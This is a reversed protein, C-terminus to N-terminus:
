ATAETHEEREHETAERWGLLTRAMLIRREGDRDVRFELARDNDELTMEDLEDAEDLRAFNAPRMISSATLFKVTQQEEGNIFAVRQRRVDAGKRQIARLVRDIGVEALRAMIARVTAPPAPIIRKANPVGSRRREEVVADLVAAVGEPEVAKARIPARKRKPAIRQDSPKPVGNGKSPQGEVTRSLRGSITDSLSHPIRSEYHNCFAALVSPHQDLATAWAALWAKPNRAQEDAAEVIWLIELDPWWVALPPSRERLEDIACQVDYRSSDGALTAMRSLSRELIGAINATIGQVMLDRALPSLGCTRPHTHFDTRIRRYRAM